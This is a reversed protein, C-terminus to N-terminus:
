NRRANISACPKSLIEPKRRSTGLLHHLDAQAKKDGGQATLLAQASTRARQYQGADAYAMALLFSNPYDGPKLKSARELYVLAESAKGSDVLSKGLRHNADFSDPYHEVEARLTAEVPKRSEQGPSGSLSAIDKALADKTRVVTNSGHGGLNTGDTVGAVTFQPEDFFEPSGNGAKGSPASSSQAPIKKPTDITLDLTKTEGSVIACPGFTAPSFGNM